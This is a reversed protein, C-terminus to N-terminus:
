QVEVTTRATQGEHMGSLVTATVTVPSTAGSYDATALYAELAEEATVSESLQAWNGVDSGDTVHVNGCPTTRWDIPIARYEVVGDDAELAAELAAADDTTVTYRCYGSDQAGSVLSTVLRMWASQTESDVANITYTAM